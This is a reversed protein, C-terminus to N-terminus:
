ERQYGDMSEMIFAKRGQRQSQEPEPEPELGAERVGMVVQM